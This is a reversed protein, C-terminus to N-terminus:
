EGELQDPTVEEDDGVGNDALFGADNFSKSILFASMYSAAYRNPSYWSVIDSLCSLELVRRRIIHTEGKRLRASDYITATDVGLFASCGTLNQHPFPVVMEAGDPSVFSYVSV